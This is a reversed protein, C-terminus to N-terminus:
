RGLLADVPDRGKQNSEEKSADILPNLKMLGGGLGGWSKLVAEDAVTDAWRVMYSKFQDTWDEVDVTIDPGHWRMAPLYRRDEDGERNKFGPKGYAKEFTSKMSLFHPAEYTRVLKYLSGNSLFYYLHVHGEQVHLAQEGHGAKFEFRIISVNWGSQTGDFSIWDDDVTEIRANMERTLKDKNRVDMTRAIVSNYYNRVRGKVFEELEPKTMGFKFGEFTPDVAVPSLSVGTVQTAAEVEQGKKKKALASSALGTGVVFSIITLGVFLRNWPRNM